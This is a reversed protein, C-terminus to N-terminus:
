RGFSGLIRFSRYHGLKRRWNTDDCAFDGAWGTRGIREEDLVDNAWEEMEYADRGGFGMKEDDDVRMRGRPLFIVQVNPDTVGFDEVLRGKKEVAADEDRVASGVLTDGLSSLSDYKQEPWPTCPSVRVAKVTPSVEVQPVPVYVEITSLDVRRRRFISPKGTQYSLSRWSSGNSGENVLRFPLPGWNPLSSLTDARYQCVKKPKLGKEPDDIPLAPLPRNLALATAPLQPLSKQKLLFSAQSETRLPLAPLPKEADEYIELGSLSARVKSKAQAALCQSLPKARKLEFPRDEGMQFNKAASDLTALYERELAQAATEADGDDDSDEEDDNDDHPEVAEFLPSANWIDHVEDDSGISGFKSKLPFPTWTLSNGSCSHSCRLSTTKPSVERAPLPSMTLVALTSARNRLKSRDYISSRRRYEHHIPQAPASFASTTKFTVKRRRAVIFEDTISDSSMSSTADTM